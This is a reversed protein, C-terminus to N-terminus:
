PALEDLALGLRNLGERLIETEIALGLRFHNEAGFFKGPVVSTEYKQLLLTCLWDTSGGIWRPFSTTGYATRAVELDKRSNFFADLVPRNFALLSQTRQRIEDLHNLAIVNLQHAIHVPSAAFLDDLLWMKRALEPEALIWGCRLGSLGYVKTLSSTVIFEEGMHIASPRLPDFVSDLYVEDVLIKAAIGRALSGLRKLTGQHTLASSPNHLNTFVILKTRSTIKQEVEEPEIQFGNEFKREFHKVKAGLYRAVALIPEYVPYEILVEDGPNLIAAMVLHNAMSTGMATVVHDGSVNHKAALAQKLPEYGYGGPGTIELDELRVPLDQLRFHLMGSRALNFPASSNLKAWHMYESNKVRSTEPM